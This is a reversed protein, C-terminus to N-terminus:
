CSISIVFIVPVRKKLRAFHAQRQELLLRLWVKGKESTIKRTLTQFFEELGKNGCTKLEMDFAEVMCDMKDVEKVWKAEPTEGKDYEVWADKVKTALNPDYPRM